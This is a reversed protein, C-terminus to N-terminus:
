NLHQTLGRIGRIEAGLTPARRLRRKPPISARTCSRRPLTWGLARPAARTPASSMQSYVDWLVNSLGFFARLRRVHINDYAHPRMHESRTIHSDISIPATQLPALKQTNVVSRETAQCHRLQNNASPQKATIHWCVLHIYTRTANTAKSRVRCMDVWVTNESYSTPSAVHCCPGHRANRTWDENETQGLQLPAYSRTFNHFLPLQTTHRRRANPERSRAPDVCSM